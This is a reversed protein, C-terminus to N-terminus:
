VVSKRDRGPADPDLLLVVAAAGAGGGEEGGGGLARGAAEALEDM